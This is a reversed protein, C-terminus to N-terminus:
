KEFEDKRMAEALNYAEQGINDAWRSLIMQRAAEQYNQNELASLMRTFSLLGSLSTQGAMRILVAQRTSSLESYAPILEQLKLHLFITEPTMETLSLPFALEELDSVRLMKEQSDRVQAKNNKQQKPKTAQFDLKLEPKPDSAPKSSLQRLSQAQQKPNEQKLAPQPNSKSQKLENLKSEQQATPLALPEPNQKLAIPLEWPSIEQLGALLQSRYPSLWTGAAIFILILVVALAYALKSRGAKGELDARAEKVIRSTVKKRGYGYSTILANDALINIKRPVGQAYSCIRRLATRTFIKRSTGARSLRHLIYKKSQTRSLPKLTARIAIRQRLQRLEKLELTKDLEIQGILFIQLLKDKSTELNSLMRLNELTQLPMNQAEDIVLIVNYGDQYEQILARQLEQVLEFVQDQLSLGAQDQNGSCPISSSSPPQLGLESYITLLLGKFSINSNFVFITKIKAKSSWKSLFSRVVTTKGLGVEGTLAIFGKRNKLGYILSGFSEKHSPSLYFFHPDPTIHFPEKELGFYELYM